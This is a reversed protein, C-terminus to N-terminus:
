LSIHCQMGTGYETLFNQVDLLGKVGHGRVARSQGTIQGLCKTCKLSHPDSKSDVPTDM